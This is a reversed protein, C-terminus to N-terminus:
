RGIFPLFIFDVFEVQEGIEVSGNSSEVPVSQGGVSGLSSDSLAIAASGDAASEKVTLNITALAGDAFAAPDASTDTLVIEIRGAEDYNVAQLLGAAGHLDVTALDFTADDFEIAFTAASLDHGASTLVVPVNVTGGQTANVSGVALGAISSSAANANPCVYANNFFKRVTCTLDGADINMDKNANCGYPSFDTYSGHYANWWKLGDGDFYELGIATLDGADIIGNGNCDGSVGLNNEDVEVNVTATDTKPDNADGDSITYTFEDAGIWNIDTLVYTVKLGDTNVIGRKGNTASQIVCDACNAAGDPDDDNILVDIDTTTTVTATDDVADPAVNPPTFVEVEINIDKTFSGGYSDETKVTLTYTGAAPDDVAVEIEDDYPAGKIRFIATPTQPLITYTYTDNNDMDTTVLTGVYDNPDASSDVPVTNVLMINTPKKNITTALNVNRDETSGNVPDGTANTFTANALDLTTVPGACAGSPWTNSKLLISAISRTAQGPGAIIPAPGGSSIGAAVFRVTNPPTALTDETDKADFVFSNPLLGTVDDTGPVNPDDGEIDGAFGHNTPSDPDLICADLNLDFNVASVAKDPSELIIDVKFKNDAIMYPPSLKLKPDVAPAPCKVLVEVQGIAPLGGNDRIRYTFTDPTADDCFNNDPTYLVKQDGTVVATGNAPAAVVAELTITDSTEGPGGNDNALVNISLSNNRTTMVSDPNAVPNDNVPNITINIPASAGANSCPTATDIECLRYSSSVSGNQNAGPAYTIRFTGGANGFTFDAVPGSLFAIRYRADFAIGTNFTKPTDENTSGNIATADPAPPADDAFAAQPLLAFAFVVALTAILQWLSRAGPLDFRSNMRM